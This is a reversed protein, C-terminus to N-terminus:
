KLYVHLVGRGVFVGSAAGFAGFLGVECGCSRFRSGCCITGCVFLPVM